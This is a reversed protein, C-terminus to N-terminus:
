HLYVKKTVSRGGGAASVRVLYIGKELSISTKGTLRSQHVRQGQLNFVTTTGRGTITITKNHSTITHQTPELDEISVPDCTGFTQGATISVDPCTEYAFDHITVSEYINGVSLQIWGFHDKGDIKFKVGVYGTKGNFLGYPNPYDKGGLQYWGVNDNYGTASSTGWNSIATNDIPSGFNLPVVYANSSGKYGIALEYAYYNGATENQLGIDNYKNFLFEFGINFDPVLDGNLDIAFNDGDTALVSDPNIDTHFVSAQTSGVALVATAVVGYKKVNM